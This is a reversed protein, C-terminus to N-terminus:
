QSMNSGILPLKSKAALQSFRRWRYIFDKLYMRLRQQRSEQTYHLISGGGVGLAQCGASGEGALVMIQLPCSLHSSYTVLGEIYEIHPPLTRTIDPLLVCIDCAHGRV